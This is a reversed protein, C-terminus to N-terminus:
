TTSNTTTLSNTTVPVKVAPQEGPVLGLKLVIERWPVQRDNLEQVRSRLCSPEDGMHWFLNQSMGAQGNCVGADFAVQGLICHDTHDGNCMRGFLGVRDPYREAARVLGLKLQELTIPQM